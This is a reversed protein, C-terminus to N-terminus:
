ADDVETPSLKCYKNIYIRDQTLIPPEVDMYWKMRKINIVGDKGVLQHKDDRRLVPVWTEKKYAYTGRKLHTPLEDWNVGHQTILTHQKQNSSLNQCNRHGIYHHALASISNRTCDQQRWLFAPFVENEPVIFGRLDFTAWASTDAVDFLGQRLAEQNFFNSCMAAGVSLVKNMEKGFWPQTSIKMDDRVLITIEDSQTYGIMAGPIEQCLKLMTNQMISVLRGDFPKACKWKKTQTHFHVGDFRLILPIRRTWVYSSSVEYAKMRDGLSDEM